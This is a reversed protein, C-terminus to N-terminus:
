EEGAAWELEAALQELADARRRMGEAEARALDLVVREWEQPARLANSGRGSRMRSLSNLTIGFAAAVRGLTLTTGETLRDTATKFDM